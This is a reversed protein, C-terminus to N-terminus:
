INTQFHSYYEFTNVFHNYKLLLVLLTSVELATWGATVLVGLQHGASGDGGTCMGGALLYATM